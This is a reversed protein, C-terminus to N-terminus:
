TRGAFSCCGVVLSLAVGAIVILVIAGFLGFDGTSALCIDVSQTSNHWQSAKTIANQNYTFGMLFTYLNEIPRVHNVIRDVFGIVIGFISISLVIGVNKWNVKRPEMKNDEVSM